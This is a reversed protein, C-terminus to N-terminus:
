SLISRLPKLFKFKSKLDLKGDDWVTGNWKEKYKKIGETGGLGALDYTQFGLEKAKLIVKWKLWDPAFYPCWDSRWLACETVRGQNVWVANGCVPVGERLAVFFWCDLLMEGTELGLSARYTKCKDMYESKSLWGFTLGERTGKSINKRLEKKVSNLITKEERSLDILLTKMRLSGALLRM